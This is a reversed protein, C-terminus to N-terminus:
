SNPVQTTTVYWGGGLGATYGFICSLHVTNKHDRSACRACGKLGLCRRENFRTDYRNKQQLKIIDFGVRAGGSRGQVDSVDVWPRADILGFEYEVCDVLVPKVYQGDRLRENFVIM